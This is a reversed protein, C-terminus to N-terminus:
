VKEIVNKYGDWEPNYKEYHPEFVPSDVVISINGLDEINFLRFDPFPKYDKSDSVGHTQVIHVKTSQIGAITTFIFVAHPNGTRVGAVKNLKNYEFNISHRNKIAKILIELQTM